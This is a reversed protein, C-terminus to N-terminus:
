YTKADIYEPLKIRKKAYSIIKIIKYSIEICFNGNMCLSRFYKPIIECHQIELTFM